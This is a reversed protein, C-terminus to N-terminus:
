CLQQQKHIFLRNNCVQHKHSSLDNAKGRYLQTAGACAQLLAIPRRHHHHVHSVVFAACHNASCEAPLLSM